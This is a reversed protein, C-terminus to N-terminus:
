SSCPRGFDGTVDDEAVGYSASQEYGSEQQLGTAFSVLFQEEGRVAHLLVCGDGAYVTSSTSKPLLDFLKCVPSLITLNCKKARVRAIATDMEYAMDPLQAGESMGLDFQGNLISGVDQAGLEMSDEFPGVGDLIYISTATKLVIGTGEAVGRFVSASRHWQRLAQLLPLRADEGMCPQFFTRKM